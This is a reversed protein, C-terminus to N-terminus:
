GITYYLPAWYTCQTIFLRMKTFSHPFRFDRLTHQFSAFKVFHLLFKSFCLSIIIKGFYPFTSFCRLYPFNLIKLLHSFFTMLFKPPHFNVFKNPFTVNHHGKKKTM